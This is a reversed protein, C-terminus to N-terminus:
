ICLSLYCINYMFTLANFWQAVKGKPEELELGVWQGPAFEADGYFRVTGTVQTVVITNVLPFLIQQAPIIWFAWNYM